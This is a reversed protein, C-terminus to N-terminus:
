ISPERLPARLSSFPYGKTIVDIVIEPNEGYVEVDFLEIPENVEGNAVDQMDLIKDARYIQPGLDMDAASLIFYYTLKNEEWFKRYKLNLMVSIGITASDGRDSAYFSCNYINEKNDINGLISNKVYRNQENIKNLGFKHIRYCRITGGSDIIKKIAAESADYINLHLKLDYDQFNSVKALLRVHKKKRLIGKKILLDETIVDGDKFLGRQVYRQLDILNIVQPTIRKRTFGVKPLRKVISTQGGSFGGIAAGSRSKQGKQGRGATKGKGSGIGRGKRKKRKFAEKDPFIENLKM